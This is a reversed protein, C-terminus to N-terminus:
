VHGVVEYTKEFIDSKCPYHEGAVGRITFDHQNQRHDGELTKIVLFAPATPLPPGIYRYDREVEEWKLSRERPYRLPHEEGRGVYSATGGGSLIWDIIPTAGEASGDWRVAEVTVPKKRYKKLKM